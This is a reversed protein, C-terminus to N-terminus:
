ATGSVKQDVNVPLLALCPSMDRIRCVCELFSTDSALRRRLPLSIDQMAREMAAGWRAVQHAQCWAAFARTAALRAQPSDRASCRATEHPDASEM